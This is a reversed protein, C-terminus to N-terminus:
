KKIEVKTKNDGDKTSFDVGKSDISISTGDKDEKPQVVTAEKKEIIITKEVSKEPNEKCSTCIMVTLSALIFTVKKM